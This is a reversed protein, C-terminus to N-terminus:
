HRKVTKSELYDFLASLAFTVLLCVTFYIGTHAALRTKQLAIMPLRQLIFLSFLHKGCYNLFRNRIRVKMTFLVLLVAFLCATIQYFIMSKLWFHHFICFATLVAALTILYRRRNCLFKELSDREFALLMGVMYCFMTNYWWTRKEMDMVAIYISSVACLMLLGRYMQERNKPPFALFSLATALYLFLITVVYWNSNGLGDWGLVSLLFKRATVTGGLSLRLIAYLCVAIAFQIWVRPVRKKLLSGAYGSRNKLCIGVGYGSYLLFPVVVLQRMSQNFRLYWQNLLGAQDIYSTFHSIFVLLIFLGNVTQTSERTLYDANMGKTVYRCSGLGLLLVLILPILM